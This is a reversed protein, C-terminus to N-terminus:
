VYKVLNEHLKTVLPVRKAPQLSLTPVQPFGKGRFIGGPKEVKIKKKTQQQYAGGGFYGAVFCIIGKKKGKEKM